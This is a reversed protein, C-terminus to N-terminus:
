RLLISPHIFLGGASYSEKLMNKSYCTWNLLRLVSELVKHQLSVTMKRRCLCLLRWHKVDREFRHSYILTLLETESTM